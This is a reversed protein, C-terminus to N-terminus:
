HRSSTRSVNITVNGSAPAPLATNPIYNHINYFLYIHKYINYFLNSLNKLLIAYACRVFLTLGGLLEREFPSSRQLHSPCFRRPVLLLPPFYLSSIFQRKVLLYTSSVRTRLVPLVLRQATYVQVGAWRRAQKLYRRVQRLFSRHTLWGWPDICGLPSMSGNFQPKM